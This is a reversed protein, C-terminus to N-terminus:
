HSTYLVCMYCLASLLQSFWNNASAVADYTKFQLAPPTTLSTESGLTTSASLSSEATSEAPHDAQKSTSSGIERIYEALTGGSCYEMVLHLEMDSGDLDDYEDDDGTVDSGLVSSGDDTEDGFWSSQSQRRSRRGVSDVDLGQMVQAFRM